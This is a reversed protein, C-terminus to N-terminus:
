RVPYEVFTVREWTDMQHVAIGFPTISYILNDIIIVRQASAQEVRGMDPSDEGVPEDAFPRLLAELFLDAYEVEIAVVGADVRYDSDNWWHAQYPILALGDFFVFARHDSQVPSWSYDPEQGDEELPRIQAVRVPDTPDSVDFLSVQLGEVRGELSADQGVGLLLDEGVPHLYASFGPIKLQGLVQPDFPDSLDLAYLPDTQRFTVVYADPGMFRVSFIREGEGLGWVAGVEELVQDTPRLVTVHSESEDSWWWPPSTTAAVRLDGQYEDMSFQNLLFGAVEGSAEYVPRSVRSTNFKHILTTYGSSESLVDDDPLARWDVWRSTAVYVSDATAYITDGEAVVSAATWETIGETLDFLAISLTNLGSFIGPALVNSCDVLQGWETESSELDKLVYAPLWNDLTSNRVLERNAEIAEQEARLGNGSPHAWEIGVPNSTIVLRAVGDSLRAGNYIGDVSLDAVVEPSERDSIDVQAIRTVPGVRWGGAILLLMDEHLLMERPQFGVNLSSSVTLGGDNVEVIRLLNRNDLLSYIYHGDTKVLDAEDVGVVQVNTGTFSPASQSSDSAAAVADDGMAEAMDGVGFARFDGGDLGYPGVLELANNIYYDLIDDCSGFSRLGVTLLVPDGTTPAVPDRTSTTTTNTTAVTTAGQASDDSGCASALLMGAVALFLLRKM